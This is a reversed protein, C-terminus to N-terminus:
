FDRYIEGFGLVTNFYEYTEPAAVSLEQPILLYMAGAQAFFESAYASSHSAFVPIVRKNAYYASEFEPSNASLEGHANDYAHFLEHFVVYSSFSETSIYVTRNQTLGLADGLGGDYAPLELESGTFYLRDCCEALQEPAKALMEFHRELNEENVDGTRYVEIGCYEGLYERSMMFKLEYNTVLQGLLIGIAASVVIIAILRLGKKVTESM